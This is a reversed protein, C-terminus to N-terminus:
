TTLKVKAISGIKVKAGRSLAKEIDRKLRQTFTKQNSHGGQSVMNSNLNIACYMGIEFSNMQLQVRKGDPETIDVVTPYTKGPVIAKLADQTKMRSLM